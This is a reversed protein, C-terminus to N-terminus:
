RYELMTSLDSDWRYHFSDEGDRKVVCDSKQTSGDGCDTKPEDEKQHSQLQEGFLRLRVHPNYGKHNQRRKQEDSDHENNRADDAFVPSFARPLRVTQMQGLDVQVVRTM